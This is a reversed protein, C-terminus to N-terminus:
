DIELMERVWRELTSRATAADPPDLAIAVTCGNVPEENDSSTLALGRQNIIVAPEGDVTEFHHWVTNYSDPITPYAHGAQTYVALAQDHDIITGIRMAPKHHLRNLARLILRIDSPAFRRRLDTM